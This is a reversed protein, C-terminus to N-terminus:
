FLPLPEGETIPFPRGKLDTIMSDVPIGLAEFITAHLDGPTAPNDHPKAGHRNSSGYVQGGRIGGGALAVSYVGPYHDRGASGNIKPTRGFETLFVVLTEDLRGREELDD